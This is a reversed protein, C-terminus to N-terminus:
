IKRGCWSHRCKIHQLLWLVPRFKPKKGRTKNSPVKQFDVHCCKRHPQLWTTDFLSSHRNISTQFLSNVFSFFMHLVYSQM